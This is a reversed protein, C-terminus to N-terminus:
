AAGHDAILKEFMAQVQSLSKAGVANLVQKGGVFAMMNPIGRVGYKAPITQNEDVNMKVVKVQGAFQVAVKELSPMLMKCPGCWPAWFDVLVPSDSEIVEADFNTDTVQSLTGAM